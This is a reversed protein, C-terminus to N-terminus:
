KVMVPCSVMIQYHEKNAIKVPKPAIYCTCSVHAGVQELVHRTVAKNSCRLISKNRGSYSLPIQIDCTDDPADAARIYIHNPKDEDYTFAVHSGSQLKLKDRLGTSFSIYRDRCNITLRAPRGGKHNRQEKWSDVRKFTYAEM